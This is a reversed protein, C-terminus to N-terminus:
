YTNVCISDRCYVYIYNYLTYYLPVYICNVNNSWRLTGAYWSRTICSLKKRAFLLADYLLYESKIKKGSSAITNKRENKLIGHYINHKDPIALSVGEREM